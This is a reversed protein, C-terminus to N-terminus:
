PFRTLIMIRIHQAFMQTLHHTFIWKICISFIYIIIVRLFHTNKIDKYFLLENNM